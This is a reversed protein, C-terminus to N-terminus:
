ISAGSPYHGMYVQFRDQDDLTPDTSSFFLQIENCVSPLFKCFESTVFSAAGPEFISYVHLLSSVANLETEFKSLIKLMGSGTNHLSTVPALAVFLNLREQWYDPHASLAYFMQSTGQSHGIYAAVKKQGTHNLIYDINATDDYEGM